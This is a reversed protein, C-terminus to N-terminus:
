KTRGNQKSRAAPLRILDHWDPGCRLVCGRALRAVVAPPSYHTYRCCARLLAARQVDVCQVWGTPTLHELEETM